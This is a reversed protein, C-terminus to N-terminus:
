RPKRKTKGGSLHSGTVLKGKGGFSGGKANQTPVKPNPRQPFSKGAASRGTSFLGM